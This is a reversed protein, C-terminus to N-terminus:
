KNISLNGCRGRCRHGPHFRFWNLYTRQYIKLSIIGCILISINPESTSDSGKETFSRYYILRTEVTIMEYEM